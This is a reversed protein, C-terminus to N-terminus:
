PALAELRGETMHYRRDACDFYRDDHTVAIITMGQAKLDPLLTKYFMERTAPDQDAAWEDLVLVPRDEALALALALRKRQGTSLHGPLMDAGESVKGDMGLVSLWKRFVDQQDADLAYPKPFLHFDAFVTSFIDRYAQPPRPPINTGNLTMAGDARPYLGTLVRLATTKGSGNGGTIFVIEGRGVAFDLDQVAFATDNADPRHAYSVGQLSLGAFPADGLDVEDQQHELCVDVAQEFRDIAGLRFKAISYHHVSNIVSGIPGLLFLVAMVVRSIDDQGAGNLVPLAFVVGGALLYSVSTGTSIVQSFLVASTTRRDSLEQSTAQMDAELAARKGAHLRLEKAGHVVAESFRRHMSDSAAGQELAKDLEKNLAFYGFATVVAIVLTLIGAAPSLFLLYGYMFVLLVLGEVGAILPVAAQSLAAYHVSLGDMVQEAELDEIDRLSLHLVKDTIETRREHLATEIGRGARSILLRQATRYVVLLVIFLVAVLTSYGLYEILRAETNLLFLVGTGCMASLVVIAMWTGFSVEDPLRPWKLRPKRTHDAGRRSLFRLMVNGTLQGTM